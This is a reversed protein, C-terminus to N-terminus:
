ISELADPYFGDYFWKYNKLIENQFQKSLTRVPEKYYQFTKHTIHDVREKFYAHDHEFLMSQDINYLDHEYYDLDLFKYLKNLIYQPNASFDEYRIFVVRKNDKKFVCMMRQIDNALALTLANKCKFYYAYKEPESMSPVFSNDDSFSHLALTNANIKEFSEVIDRLDRVMCIFKSNPYLHLLNSWTRNKSIVIPKNTLADFWGHTAGHVLGYMARDAQELSMAQFQERYRSKVLIHDSILDALACTNTTFIKSNQQLINMLVTSGTRPLGGCFHIQEM